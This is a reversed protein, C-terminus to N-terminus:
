WNSKIDVPLTTQIICLVHSTVIYKGPTYRIYFYVDKELAGNIGVKQRLQEVPKSGTWRLELAVFPFNHREKGSKLSQIEVKEIQSTFPSTEWWLM